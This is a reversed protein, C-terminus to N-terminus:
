KHGLALPLQSLSIVHTMDPNFPEEATTTEANRRQRAILIDDSGCHWCGNRNYCSVAVQMPERRKKRGGEGNLLANFGEVTIAKEKVERIELGECM